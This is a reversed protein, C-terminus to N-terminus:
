GEKPVKAIKEFGEIQPVFTQAPLPANLVLESVRFEFRPGRASGGSMKKLAGSAKDAVVALATGSKHRFSAVHAPKGDLTGDALEWRTGPVLVRRLVARLLNSFKDERSPEETYKKRSPFITFLREGDEVSVLTGGGFREEATDAKNARTELFSRRVAGDPANEITTHLIKLIPSRSGVVSVKVTAQITTARDYARLSRLVIATAPDLEAKQAQAKQGPQAQAGSGSLLVAGLLLACCLHNKM